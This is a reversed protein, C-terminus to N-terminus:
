IAGDDRAFARGERFATIMRQLLLAWAKNKRIETFLLLRFRLHELALTVQLLLSEQAGREAINFMPLVRQSSGVSSDEASARGTSIPGRLRSLTHALDCVALPLPACRQCSPIDQILRDSEASSGDHRAGM